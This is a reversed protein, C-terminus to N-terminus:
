VFRGTNLAVSGHGTGTTLSTITGTALADFDNEGYNYVYPVFRSHPGLAVNNVNIETLLDTVAGLAIWDFSNAAYNIAAPDIATATFIVPSGVCGTGSATATDTGPASGLTRTVQALGNVDTYVTASSVSGGGLGVAWHVPFLNIPVGLDGSVKVVYPNLLANGITGTQNNGSVEEILLGIQPGTREEFTAAIGIVLSDSYVWQWKDCVFWTIIFPPPPTWLFADVGNLANLFSEIVLLDARSRNTFTVDFTLLANANGDIVRQEYGDGYQAKLVRPKRRGRTASSVPFAFVSDYLFTM